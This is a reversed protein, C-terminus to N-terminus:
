GGLLRGQGTCARHAHQTNSPYAISDSRSKPFDISTPSAPPAALEGYQLQLKQSVWSRAPFWKLAGIAQDYQELM